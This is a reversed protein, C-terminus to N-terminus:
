GGSPENRRCDFLGFRPNVFRPAPTYNQHVSLEARMKDLTASPRARRRWLLRNVRTTFAPALERGAYIRRVLAASQRGISIRRPVGIPCILHDIAIAGADIAPL